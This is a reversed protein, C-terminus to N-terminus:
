QQLIEICSFRSRNSLLENEISHPLIRFHTYRVLTRSEDFISLLLFM